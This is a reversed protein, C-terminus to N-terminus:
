PQQRRSLRHTINTDETAFCPGMSSPCKFFPGMTMAEIFSHHVEDIIDPEASLCTPGEKDNPLPFITGQTALDDNMVYLRCRSKVIM